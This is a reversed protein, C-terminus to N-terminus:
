KKRIKSLSLPSLRSRFSSGITDQWIRIPSSDINWMGGRILSMRSHMRSIFPKPGAPDSVSGPFGISVAAVITAFAARAFGSDVTAAEKPQPTASPVTAAGSAARVTTRYL